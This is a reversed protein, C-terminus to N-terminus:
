LLQVIYNYKEALQYVAEQTPTLEVKDYADEVIVSSMATVVEEQVQTKLPDREHTGVIQLGFRKIAENFLTADSKALVELSEYSFGENERIFEDIQAVASEVSDATGIRDDEPGDYEMHVWTWDHSRIPIPKIDYRITYGGYRYEKPGIQQLQPEQQSEMPKDGTPLLLRDIINNKYKFKLISRNIHRYYEVAM